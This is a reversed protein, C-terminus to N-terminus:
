PANWILTGIKVKAPHTVIAGEVAKTEILRGENDVIAGVEKRVEQLMSELDPM